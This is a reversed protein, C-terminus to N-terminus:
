RYNTATPVPTSTQSTMKCLKLANHHRTILPHTLKVENPLTM